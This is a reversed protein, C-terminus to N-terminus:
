ADVAARVAAVVARSALARVTDVHAEVGGVSAAVFGDGDVTAHVPALVRALGDHAGQAVLLCGGKDLTANTAVV